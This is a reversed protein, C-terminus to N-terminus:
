VIIAGKAINKKLHPNSLEEKFHLQLKRKLLKEIRALDIARKTTDIYLDIDSDITNEAKALSGFLTTEKHLIEPRIPELAKSLKLKWYAKAMDKFLPSERKARFLLNNRYEKKILLGERELHKLLKSATPPSVKQERGYERVSLERYTDEFFPSLQKFITLM